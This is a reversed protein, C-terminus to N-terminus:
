SFVLYQVKVPIDNPNYVMVSSLLNYIQSQPNDEKAIAMYCEGIKIWLNNDTVHQMYRYLGMIKTKDSYCSDGLYVIDDKHCPREPQDYSYNDHGCGDPKQNYIHWSTMDNDSSSIEDDSDTVYEANDWGDLIDTKMQGNSQFKVCSGNHPNMGCCSAEHKFMANSMVGFMEKKFLQEDCHKGHECDCDHQHMHVPIDVNVTTQIHNVLLSSFEYEEADPFIPLMVIGRMAGNPYKMTPIRLQDCETLWFYGDYKKIEANYDEILALIMDLIIHRNYLDYRLIIETDYITALIADDAEQTYKDIQGQYDIRLPEKDYETMEMDDELDGLSDYLNSVKDLRSLHLKFQTTQGIITENNTLLWNYLDCDVSYTDPDYEEDPQVPHFQKIVNYVLLKMSDPGAVFPSDPFDESQKAARMCVNKVYFFYGEQGGQFVLYVYTKHDKPDKIEQISISVNIDNQEFCENISQIFDTEGTAPASVHIHKHEFQNYVMDFDLNVYLEFDQFSGLEEPIHFYYTTLALGYEQGQLVYCSHQQLIRTEVNYQTIGAAHIIDLPISALENGNSDTIVAKNGSIDLSTDDVNLANSCVFGSQQVANNHSYLQKFLNTSAM